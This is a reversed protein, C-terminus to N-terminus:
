AIRIEAALDRAIAADKGDARLTLPGGFPEARVLEVRRGPVLGLESLYRLVEGDRDPVGQV